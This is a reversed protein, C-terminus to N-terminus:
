APVHLAVLRQLLRRRYQPPLGFYFAVPSILLVTTAVGVVLGMWSAPNLFRNAIFVSSLLSSTVLLPRLSSWFQSIASIGLRRGVLLPYTVTLLLRGAIFGLCLGAIGSKTYRILFAALAISLVVSLAGLLVKWRLDLTIDIISGDNRILVFQMTMVLILLVSSLGADYTKGVWLQIFSQNWLLTTTGVVTLILWTLSMIESRLQVAKKLDGSGVIGALGPTIGFVVIAVLSVAAEPVYKTLTYTTVLKVSKLIGLMVVDSATMLQFVIRWGLFWGSLALFRRIEQYSPMIVGFWVVCARVVQLFFVGTLLTTALNAAAVGILGTKFYVALAMLGGGLGVMCASLGMRKYGLNEGELVSRPVDALNGLMMEAVLLAAAIRVVQSMGSPAKLWTPVFWVVALGLIALLPLFLLWVGLASGVQRRKAEWDSDAQQCAITWKLTQTPRGSAPAIYSILRGLLQWSGYGYDGLGRVLLPNLVFGVVLRGGYDLAAAIANLYAKKTLTTDSLLWSIRKFRNAFASRPETRCEQSVQVEVEAITAM